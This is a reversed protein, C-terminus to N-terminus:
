NISYKFKGHLEEYKKKYKTFSLNALEDSLVGKHSNTIKGNIFSIINNINRNHQTIIITNLEEFTMPYSLSQNLMIKIMDKKFDIIQSQYYFNALQEKTMIPNDLKRM